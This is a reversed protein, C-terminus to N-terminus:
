IPTIERFYRGWFMKENNETNTLTAIAFGLSGKNPINMWETQSGIQSELQSIAEDRKDPIKLSELKLITQLM